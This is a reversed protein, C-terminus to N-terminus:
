VISHPPLAIPGIHNKVRDSNRLGLAFSILSSTVPCASAVLFAM